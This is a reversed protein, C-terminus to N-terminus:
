MQHNPPMIGPDTGAIERLAAQVYREAMLGRWQAKFDTNDMPTAVRRAAQSTELIAEETLANGLLIEDAVPVPSPRSGVAGLFLSVRTVHQHKDFWVAAAVSLVAFDISGRRRLKWFSARCREISSEAPLYIDTLLEDPQKTLYDIGDDSFLEAVDLM